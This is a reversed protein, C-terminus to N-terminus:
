HTMNWAFLIGFLVDVIQSTCENKIRDIVQKAAVFNTISNILLKM